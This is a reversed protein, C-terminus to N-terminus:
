RAPVVMDVEAAAVASPSQPWVVVAEAVSAAVSTTGVVVVVVATVAVVM